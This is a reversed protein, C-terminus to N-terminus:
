VRLYWRTTLFSTVLTVLLAAGVVVPAIGLVDAGNVFPIFQLKDALWGQLFVEAVGYLVAVSLVGGIATALLAELIFPAQIFLNSAGVLRMIGIERRRNFISLRVATAVLLVAALTTVAAFVTGAITMGNLFTFLTSLLNRQDIVREVGPAGQFASAVVDYKQPDSLKVRFSEQMQEPRVTDKIASDRFQETFHQYAEEKSEFYVREVLPRLSELQANLEDKQIQTVEGVACSPQISREPCLSIWVEVKGYWFDKIEAAQLRSMLGFGLFVFSIMTVLVLSIAMSLNRRLGIVMESVVFQPRM